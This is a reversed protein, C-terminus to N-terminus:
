FTPLDAHPSTYYLPFLNNLMSPCPSFSGLNLPACQSLLIFRPPPAFPSCKKLSFFADWYNRKLLFLPRFSKPLFLGFHLPSVCPPHHPFRQHQLYHAPILWFLTATNKSSRKKVFFGSFSFFKHTFSCLVLPFPLFLVCSLCVLCSM